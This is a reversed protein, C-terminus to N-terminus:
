IGKDKKEKTEEKLSKKSSGNRADAEKQLKKVVKTPVKFAAHNKKRPEDIYYKLAKKPSVEKHEPFLPLILELFTKLGEMYDFWDMEDGCAMTPMIPFDFGVNPMPEMELVHVPFSGLPTSILNNHDFPFDKLVNPHHPAGRAKIVCNKMGDFSLEFRFSFQYEPKTFLTKYVALSADDMTEFTGNNSVDVAKNDIFEDITYWRTALLSREFILVTTDIALHFKRNEFGPIKDAKELAIADLPNLTFTEKLGGDVLIQFAGPDEDFPIVMTLLFIDDKKCM